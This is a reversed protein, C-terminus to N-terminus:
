AVLAEREAIIRGLKKMPVPKEFFFAKLDQLKEEAIESLYGSIMIRTVGPSTSEMLQIGNVHPMKYDTILVDVENHRIYNQAEVSDNFTHVAANKSLFQIYNELLDTISSEDDVVVVELKKGMCRAEFQISTGM